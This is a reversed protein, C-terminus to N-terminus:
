DNENDDKVTFIYTVSRQALALAWMVSTEKIKEKDGIM